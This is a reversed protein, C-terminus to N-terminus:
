KKLTNSLTNTLDFNQIITNNSKVINKVLNSVTDSSTNTKIDLNIDKNVQDYLLLIKSHFKKLYNKHLCLYFFLYNKFLDIKNKVSNNANEFSSVFNNINLGIKEQSNYKKLKKNRIEHYEYLKLLKDIIEEFM